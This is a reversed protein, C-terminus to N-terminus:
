SLSTCGLAMRRQCCCATVSRGLQEVEEWTVGIGKVYHFTVYIL